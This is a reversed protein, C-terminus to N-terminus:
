PCHKKGHTLTQRQVKGWPFIITYLRQADADSKICYYLMNQELFTVFTIGKMSRIMDRIQPISVPSM